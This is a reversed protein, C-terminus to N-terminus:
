PFCIKGGRHGGIAEETGNRFQRYTVAPRFVLGWEPAFSYSAELRAYYEPLTNFNDTSTGVWGRVEARDSSWSLGGAFFAATDERDMVHAEAHAGLGSPSTHTVGPQRLDGSATAMPACRLVWLRHHYRVSSIPSEQGAAVDPMAAAFVAVCVTVVAPVCIIRMSTLGIFAPRARVGRLAVGGFSTRCRGAAM